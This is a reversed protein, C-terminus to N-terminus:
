PRNGSRGIKEARQQRVPKAQRDQCAGHCGHDPPHEQDDEWRHTQLRGALSVMQGKGLFQGCIEALREWTM